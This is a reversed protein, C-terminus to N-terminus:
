EQVLHILNGGYVTNLKKFLTACTLTDFIFQTGDITEKAIRQQEQIEKGCLTCKPKDKAKIKTKLDFADETQWSTSGGMRKQRTVTSNIIMIISWGM